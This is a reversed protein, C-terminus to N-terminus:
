CDPVSSAELTAEFGAQVVGAIVTPDLKAFDPHCGLVLLNLHYFKGCETQLAEHSFLWAYTAVDPFSEVTLNEALWVELKTIPAQIDYKDYFRLMDTVEVSTKNEFPLGYIYELASNVTNATFDTIEVTGTQTEATNRSFMAHFVTSIMSLFGRNVKIDNEGVRIAADFCHLKLPDIMEHLMVPAVKTTVSKPMLEFTVIMTITFGNPNGDNYLFNMISEQRTTVPFDFNKYESRNTANNVVILTGKVTAGSGTLSLYAKMFKSEGVRCPLVILSWTVGAGVPVERRITSILVDRRSPCHTSLVDVFTSM